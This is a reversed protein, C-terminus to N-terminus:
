CVTLKMDDNGKSAMKYLENWKETFQNSPNNYNSKFKELKDRVEKSAAGLTKAKVAMLIKDFNNYFEFETKITDLKEYAKLDDETLSPQPHEINNQDIYITVNPCDRCYAAGVSKDCSDSTHIIYSTVYDYKIKYEKMLQDSKLIEDKDVNGDTVIVLHKFHNNNEEKAIEAILHSSTGGNGVKGDIINMAEQYNLKNKSSEWKYIQDGRDEKYFKEIIEKLREFYKTKGEVSGSSDFAILTKLKTPDIQVRPKKTFKTWKNDNLQYEVIKPRYESPQLYEQTYHYEIRATWAGINQIYKATGLNKMDSLFKTYSCDIVIDGRGEEGIYFMANVGGNKNRSFPIFPKLKEVDYDTYAVTLGENIESLKHGITPRQYQEIVNIKKNFTGPKLEGVEIGKMIGGGEYNGGIKFKAKKYEGPFEIKELFLNTQYTFPENEALLVVAGGNMWFLNLVELFQGLYYAGEINNNPLIAYSPGNMVWTAYYKCKEDHDKDPDTLEFIADKYNDVVVTEIGFYELEKKICSKSDKYINLIYEKCVSEHEIQSLEKSWCMVILVKQTKLIDKTYMPKFIVDEEKALSKDLKEENEQNYFPLANLKTLIKSKLEEKLILYIPNKKLEDFKNKDMNIQKIEDNIIFPMENMPFSIEGFFTSIASLLNYPNQSYIIQNFLNEIGRPSIGVGIGFVNIGKNECIMIKEKINKQEIQSFLGDTIVFIYNVYDNRRLSNIEYAVKIASALDTKIRPPVLLSYFSGWFDSKDDLAYSISIESCLVIPDKEGTIILDFCPLDSSCLSSLFIRITQITHEACLVNLCSISNDIVLTIGYNKIFGGNLERYFMPTPTPNLFYKILENIDIISGKSSLVLQTPKNPKFILELSSLTMKEKKEKFEKTFDNIIDYLENSYSFSLINEQNQLYIKTDLEIKKNDIFGFQEIKKSYPEKCNKFTDDHEIYSKIFDIKEKLNEDSYYNNDPFDFLPKGDIIGYDKKVDIDKRILCNIVCNEIEKYFNDDLNLDYFMLEVTSKYKINKPKSFPEWVEKILYNQKNQNLKNSKAFLFGFSYKENNFVENAWENIFKLNKDMGNSIIFFVKEAHVGIKSDFKEKVHKICSFYNTMYRPIFICDLIKQLHEKDHLDSIKKIEIKFDGDGMLGLSYKIKLCNLAVAIGCLIIMNFYKTEDSLYRSCDIILNVEINEFPINKSIIRQSAEIIIKSSIVESINLIEELFDYNNHNKSLLNKTIPFDKAPEEIELQEKQINLKEIREYCDELAKLENFTSLDDNLRNNNIGPSGLEQESQYDESSKIIAKVKKESKPIPKFDINKKLNKIVVYKKEIDNINIAKGRTSNQQKNKHTNSDNNENNNAIYEESKYSINNKNLDLDSTIQKSPRQNYKRKKELIQKGYRENFEKTMTNLKQVNKYKWQKENKKIKIKDPKVVFSSLNKSKIKIENPLLNEFETKGAKFKSLMDYMSESFEWFVKSLISYDNEKKLGKFFSLLTTFRSELEKMREKKDIKEKETKPIINIEKLLYLPLTRSDSILNYYFEIIELINKPLIIKDLLPTKFSPLENQISELFINNNDM